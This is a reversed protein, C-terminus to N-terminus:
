HIKKYSFIYIKNYKHLCYDIVPFTLTKNPIPMCHTHIKETIIMILSEHMKNNPSFNLLSLFLFNEYLASLKMCDAYQMAETNKMNSLADPLIIKNM